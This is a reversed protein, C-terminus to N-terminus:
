REAVTGEIPIILPDHRPYDTEITLTGKFPGVPLAGAPFKVQVKIRKKPELTSGEPLTVEVGAISFVASRITVPRDSYNHLAVKVIKEERVPLGNIYRPFPKVMEVIGKLPVTFREYGPCDTEITITGEFPGAPLTEKLRSLWLQCVIAEDPKIEQVDAESLMNKGTEDFLKLRVGELSSALKTVMVPGQSFNSITIWPVIRGLKNGIDISTQSLQVDPLLKEKQKVLADTLRAAEARVEDLKAVASSDIGEEGAMRLIADIEEGMSTCEKIVNGIQSQTLKKRTRFFSYATELRGRVQGHRHYVSRLTAPLDPDADLSILEQLSRAGGMPSAMERYRNRVFVGHASECTDGYVNVADVALFHVLARRARNDEMRQHVVGITFMISAIFISLLGSLLMGLFAGLGSRGRKQEKEEPAM